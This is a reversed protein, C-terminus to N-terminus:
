EFEYPTDKKIILSSILGAVTYFALNSIYGIVLSATGFPTPSLKMSDRIQDESVQGTADKLGMWGLMKNSMEISAQITLEVLEQKAEPDIIHFILIGAVVYGLFAIAITMVFYLLTSGFSIYGNMEKKAQKQAYVGLIFILISIPYTVLPNLFLGLDINWMIFYAIIFIMFGILGFKLSTKKLIDNM